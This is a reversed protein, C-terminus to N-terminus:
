NIKKEKKSNRKKRPYNQHIPISSDFNEVSLETTELSQEQIENENYNSSSKSHNM